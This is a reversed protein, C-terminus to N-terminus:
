FNSSHKPIFNLQSVQPLHSPTIGNRLFKEVSEQGPCYLLPPTPSHPSISVVDIIDM